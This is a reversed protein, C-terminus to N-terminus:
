FQSAPTLVVMGREKATVPQIVFSAVLDISTLTGHSMRGIEHRPAGVRRAPRTTPLM